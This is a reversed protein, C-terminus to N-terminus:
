RGEQRKQRALLKNTTVTGLPRSTSHPFLRPKTVAFFPNLLNQTLGM